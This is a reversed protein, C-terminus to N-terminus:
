IDGLRFIFEFSFFSRQPNKPIVLIKRTLFNGTPNGRALSNEFNKISLTSVCGLFIKMKKNHKPNERPGLFNEFENKDIFLKFM